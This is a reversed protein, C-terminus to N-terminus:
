VLDMDSKESLLFAGADKEDGRSRRIYSLIPPKYNDNIEGPKEVRHNM